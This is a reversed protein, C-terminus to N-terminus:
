LNIKGGLKSLVDDLAKNYIEWPKDFLGWREYNNKDVRLKEIEEVVERRSQDLLKMWEEVAGDMAEEELPEDITGQIQGYIMDQEIRERLKDRIDKTM